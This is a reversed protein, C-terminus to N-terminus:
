RRIVEGSFTFFILLMTHRLRGGWSRSLTLKLLCKEFNPLTKFTEIVPALFEPVTRKSLWTLMLM